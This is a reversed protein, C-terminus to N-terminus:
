EPQAPTPALLGLLAAGSAAALSQFGTSNAAIGSIASLVFVALLAAVTLNGGFEKGTFAALRRMKGKQQGGEAVAQKEGVVEKSKDPMSRKTPQPALIGLLGGGLASVIKWLESPIPSCESNCESPGFALVLCIGALGVVLALGIAGVVLRYAGKDRTEPM